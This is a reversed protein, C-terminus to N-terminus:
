SEMYKKLIAASTEFKGELSDFTAQKISKCWEEHTKLLSRRMEETLTSDEEIAKMANLVFNLSPPVGVFFETEWDREGIAM